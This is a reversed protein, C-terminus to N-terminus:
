IQDFQMKIYDCECDSSLVLLFLLIFWVSVM